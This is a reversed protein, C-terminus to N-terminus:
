RAEFIDLYNKSESNQFKKDQEEWIKLLDNYSKENVIHQGQEIEQKIEQNLIYYKYFFLNALFVALFIIMLFSFFLNEALFVPIKGLNGLINKIKCKM